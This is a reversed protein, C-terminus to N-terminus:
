PKGGGGAPAGDPSGGGGGGGLYITVLFCRLSMICTAISSANTNPIITAITAYEVPLVSTPSMNRVAICIM